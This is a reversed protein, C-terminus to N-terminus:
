YLTQLININLKKEAIERLVGGGGCTSLKFSAIKIIEKHSDSPCCSYKCIKMAFYDNLDNGVYLTKSLDIYGSTHLEGLKTKKNLVGSYCRIKLKKARAKVVKNKESSVIIVNIKLKKFANIAIGDARNCAVTEYGDENIFVRNNTLVGDFDLLITKINKINIKM